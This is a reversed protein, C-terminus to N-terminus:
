WTIVFVLSACTISSYQSTTRSRVAGERRLCLRIECLTNIFDNQLLGNGCVETLKDSIIVLIFFTLELM